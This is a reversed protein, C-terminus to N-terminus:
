GAPVSWGGARPSFRRPLASLGDALAFLDRAPPHAGETRRLAEALAGMRAHDEAGFSRSAVVQPIPATDEVLGWRSRERELKTGRLLMLPFAKITPVGMSLCWAVSERFSELTQNPLGYILSVEFPHGAARILALREEVVRMNNPRDVARGEMDHITQLGFEFRLHLGRAADLFAPDVMELRAQLSLRARLDLRRAERLVALSEEGDHFIPDLVAIDAVGRLAFLELEERIRGPALRQFDRASPNRHQCFSCAFRCGRKTEWRLFGGRRVDVTGDLFPSPLQHLEVRAQTGFDVGGAWTVGAVPQDDDAKALDVLAQEGAGRVVCDADPYLGQVDEAFTVQPGGVVIRAGPHERRLRPLLEQLLPECWVYAGLALIPPRPPLGDVAQRVRRLISDVDSGTSNVPAVVSRSPVHAARLSALISAHGLPVRPDKDRTWPLDVLVVPRPANRSPTPSCPSAQDM